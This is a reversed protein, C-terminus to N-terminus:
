VRKDVLIMVAILCTMPWLMAMLVSTKYDTIYRGHQDYLDGVLVVIAVFVYFWVVAQPSV